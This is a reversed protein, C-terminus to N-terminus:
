ARISVSKTTQILATCLTSSEKPAGSSVTLDLLSIHELFVADIASFLTEGIM